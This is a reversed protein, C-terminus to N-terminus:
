TKHEYMRHQAILEEIAFCIIADREFSYLVPCGRDETRGLHDERFACQKAHEHIAGVFKPLFFFSDDDEGLCMFKADLVTDTNLILPQNVLDRPKANMTLLVLIVPDMAILWLIFNPMHARLAKYFIEPTYGKGYKEQVLEEYARAYVPLNMYYETSTPPIWSDDLFVYTLYAAEKDTLDRGPDELLTADVDDCFEKWVRLEEEGIAKVYTTFFETYFEGGSTLPPRKFSLMLRSQIHTILIAQAANRVDESEPLDRALIVVGEQIKSPFERWFDRRLPLPKYAKTQPCKGM